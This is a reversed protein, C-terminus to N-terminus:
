DCVYDGPAPRRCGDPPGRQDWLESLGLKRAFEPLQPLRRASAGWKSWLWSMFLTDPLTRPDQGVALAREPQQLLLLAWSAAHSVNKTRGALYADVMAIARARRTADGFFGEALVEAANDPFGALSSQAGRAFQAIAEADRGEDHSILGLYREGAVLGQEVSLQAAHRASERDGANFYWFARWGLANPLLPDIKLAKDIAAIGAAVYGTDVLFLGRWFMANSDNPDLTTARQSEVDDAIWHRRYGHITALAAHPEALTPDLDIALNAEQEATALAQEVDVDAYAGIIAGLAASRAHARAFNPDLRTAEKLKAIADAMRAGDRHNFVATAQLYLEHAEPSTTAIPVLRTGHDGAIVVQLQDTIARAIREQVEFVDKLDGDYTNSWLHFGNSVRILQATIRVKDGQKRVSGELVSAVGLTRGVTRLDENTGKFHFSSTRGAVRLDKVQALANLIEEAMGDSFYEQDHAPSLDTFPLVAISKADAADAAPGAVDNTAKASSAAAASDHRPGLVFKDVAFYVLAVLLVAIIAFDIRQVPTWTGRLGHIATLPRRATQKGISQEPPVDVDRKIGEPTLEYIWSFILTPVFGIVITAVIAKMIWAPAEFVPLLTAFVQVALWAGVLYLGAMRIVNRRKLEAVFSM